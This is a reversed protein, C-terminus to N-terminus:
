KKRDHFAGRYTPDEKRKQRDIERAIAQREVYPTEEIFIDTPLPKVEIKDKTIGEIKALHYEDAPTVFTIADGTEFARGTRGVRHVYDEYIMPVDFNIVHSVKKVDIGRAAVDTSVLVRVNGESFDRIANIRSNQGKNSHITRVSTLEMRELFKGLETVTSKKRVFVIIRHFKNDTLLHKLLSLKAKFNPVRYYIQTVLKAPTSQPTVEIRAAFDIFEKSMREVREPFTASFLLNQRKSPIWEQIRRLQPMFNMDMMKDAEDVVLIKITKTILSNKLYLEELRGPTSVVIDVGDELIQQQAKPGIGGYLSAIKLDTNKAFIVAQGAVQIVLEKTPLLVLARPGQKSFFKLKSLIPLLYAATKGTGTQAIGIVNQGNLVAPICKSQVETPHRFELSEVVSVFQRTIGLDDWKVTGQMQL